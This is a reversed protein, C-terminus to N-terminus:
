DDTVWDTINIHSVLVGGSSHKIPTAQMLFWRRQYPSHCPYKITFRELEGELVKRLGYYVQQAIDADAGDKIKCIDLYNTGPGCHSLSQSGNREAFDRWAQNALTITGQRDLIVVHESLADIINQLHQVDKRHTIDFFSIVVGCLIKQQDNYPLLRVLYWHEDVTQIERETIQRNEIVLNLDQIFERYDMNHKFDDISRGIDTERIRFIQTAEPTFRTLKLHSDVYISPVLAANTLNDLEANLRNLIEIKEQNETNVTYLEENVSQLEENTSQLEENSAMLEENTAQLEENSTELEEITAQLSDQTVSLDRELSKIRETSVMNVDISDTEELTSENITQPEFVLLFYRDPNTESTLPRVIVRVLEAEGTEPDFLQLESRLSTNEKAVKHLLAVSVPALKGALLKSVELSAVGEPIRIYRQVDGYVHVLEREENILLSPPVYSKMLQSSGSEIIAAESSRNHESRNSSISLRGIRGKSHAKFDLPLSISRILRYIKHKANIVAFDKQLEGLSESSGLLLYGSHSLAYQFRLLAKEQAHPEFYILMNRCSVLDMRTFPPDELVNHRAFVIHQRIDNKVVFRNNKRTFFRELREHSLEALIGESYVGSSAFDIHQQEVDTAFIKIQPWRKARDFAEIFMMTLTYAEEGTSCGEVWIRIPQTNQHEAVITDIVSKELIYFTEKDRFFSSVPILIDRKLTLIEARDSELLGLYNSLDRVHRVQMRREIRRMVTTPKYDKFNIGGVQYLLHFIGEMPDGDETNSPNQISKIKPPHTNTIHAVVRLALVEPPLIDDVLGTAIVSRPMGDFKATEPDQALLFGGADNISLAGRTGDSGTGSLIIGVCRNGFEKALSHFFLDIPLSLGQPNKPVLRLESGAMTMNKGPPILYVHNAQICLGNEAMMVPMDTHRALLNDMMSKHDPSLHQIVIISAGSNSVLKDFFRELADLGGASAGIAIVYGSFQSSPIQNISGVNKHLDLHSSDM